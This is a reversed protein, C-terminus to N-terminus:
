VIAISSILEDFSLKAALDESDFFRMLYTHDLHLAFITRVQVPVAADLEVHEFLYRATYIAAPCASITTEKPKEVVVYEKLHERCAQMDEIAKKLMPPLNDSMASSDRLLRMLERMCNELEEWEPLNSVLTFQASPMFRGEADPEPQVGVFPLGIWEIVDPTLQFDKPGLIQGAAMEGMARIDVFKWGRPKRFAVGLQRNVYLDDVVAVVDGSSAAFAAFGQGCRALFERRGIGM